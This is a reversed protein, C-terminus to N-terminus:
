IVRDIVTMKDFIDVFRKDDIIFESLEKRDNCIYFDGYCLGICFGYVKGLYWKPTISYKKGNYALIVENGRYMTEIFESFSAFELGM